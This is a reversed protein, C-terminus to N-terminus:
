DLGNLFSNLASDDTDVKPSAQTDHGDFVPIDSVDDGRGIEVFSGDSNECYSLVSQDDQPVDDDASTTVDTVDVEAEPEDATADDASPHEESRLDAAKESAEGSAKALRSRRFTDDVALIEVATARLTVPGVTLLDDPTLFTPAEIRHGNVITGNSSDLDRVVLQGEYEYIECHQRSVTSGRLKVKATNSRGIVTPLRIELCAPKAGSVVELKAKM